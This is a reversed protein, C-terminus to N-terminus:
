EMAIKRYDMNMLGLLIVYETKTEKSSSLNMLNIIEQKQKEFNEHAIKRYTGLLAKDKEVRETIAVRKKELEEKKILLECISKKIELIKKENEKLLIMLPKQEKLKKHSMRENYVRLTEDYYSKVITPIEEHMKKRGLEIKEKISPNLVKFFKHSYMMDNLSNHIELEKESLKEKWEQVKKETLIEQAEFLIKEIVEEVIESFLLAFRESIDRVADRSKWKFDSTFLEDRLSDIRNDIMENINPLFFAQQRNILAQISQCVIDLNQKLKEIINEKKRLQIQKDELLETVDRIENEVNLAEIKGYYEEDEIVEKIWSILSNSKKEQIYKYIKEFVKQRFKILYERDKDNTLKTNILESFSEGIDVPFFLPIKTGFVREFQYKCEDYLMEEFTKEKECSGFYKYISEQSYSSTTVVIYKGTILKTYDDGNPACFYQLDNIDYISQVVINLSSVSMYKRLIAETHYREEMNTTEYGPVDLINIRESVFISNEFYSNPIYLYLVSDNVRKHTEVANRIKKIKKIFEDRTCKEIKYENVENIGHECVGFFDDDSKQYIIATSTSSKGKPTEARLIYNLESLKDEEVGMLSLILTTKGSHSKGFVMVLKEDQQGMAKYKHSKCLLQNLIQEQTDKQWKNRNDELLNQLSM